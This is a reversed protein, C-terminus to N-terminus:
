KEDGEKEFAACFSQYFSLDKRYIENLMLQELVMSFKQDPYMTKLKEKLEKSLFQINIGRKLKMGQNLTLVNEKKDLGSDGELTLPNVRKKFQEQKKDSTALPSVRKKM